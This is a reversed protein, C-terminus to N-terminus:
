TNRNCHKGPLRNCFKRGYTSSGDADERIISVTHGVSVNAVVSWVTRYQMSSSSL